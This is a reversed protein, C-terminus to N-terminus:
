LTETTKRMEKQLSITDVVILKTLVKESYKEKNNKNESYERM